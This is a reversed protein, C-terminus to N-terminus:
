LITRESSDPYYDRINERTIFTHRCFAAPPV